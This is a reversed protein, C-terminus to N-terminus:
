SSLDIQHQGQAEQRRLLEDIQRGARRVEEPPIQRVVEGTRTDIVHYIVRRNQDIQISLSHQPPEPLHIARPLDSAAGGHTPRRTSGSALNQPQQRSPTEEVEGAGATSAASVTEIRM